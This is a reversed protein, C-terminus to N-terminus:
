APSTSTPGREEEVSRELRSTIAEVGADGIREVTCRDDLLVKELTGESAEPAWLAFWEPHDWFDERQQLHAHLRLGGPTARLESLAEYSGQEGLSTTIWHPVQRHDEVMRRHLEAARGAEADALVREALASSAERHADILEWLLEETCAPNGAVASIIETDTSRRVAASTAEVARRAWATLTDVDCCCALM